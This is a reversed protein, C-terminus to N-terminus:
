VSLGTPILSSKSKKAQSTTTTVTVTTTRSEVVATHQLLLDGHKRKRGKYNSVDKGNANFRIMKPPSNPFLEEDAHACTLFGSGDSTTNLEKARLKAANAHRREEGGRNKFKRSMDSIIVILDCSLFM